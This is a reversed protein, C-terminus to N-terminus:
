DPLNIVFSPRMEHVSEVRGKGDLRAMLVRGPQDIAIGTDIRAESLDGGWCREAYSKIRQDGTWILVRDAHSSDIGHRSKLDALQLESHKMKIGGRRVSIRHSIVYDQATFDAKGCAAEVDSRTGGVWATTSPKASAASIWVAASGVLLVLLCVVLPTALGRNLRNIGMNFLDSPEVRYKFLPASRCGDGREWPGLITRSGVKIARNTAMRNLGRDEVPVVM